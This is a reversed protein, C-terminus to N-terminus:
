GSVHLINIAPELYACIVAMAICDAVSFEVRSEIPSGMDQKSALYSSTGWV